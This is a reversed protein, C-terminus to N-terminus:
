GRISVWELKKKQRLSDFSESLRLFVLDDM